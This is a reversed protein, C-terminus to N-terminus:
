EGLLIPRTIPCPEQVINPMSGCPYAVTSVLGSRKRNRGAFKDFITESTQENCVLCDNMECEPAPGNPPLPEGPEVLAYFQERLTVPLDYWKNNNNNNNNDNNNDSESSSPDDDDNNTFNTVNINTTNDVTVSWGGNNNDNDGDVAGDGSFGNFLQVTPDLVCSGFCKSATNWSTDSWIRACDQTLGLGRYCALGNEISTSAQRRCFNGPSTVGVFDVTAYVALDQVTSCVGCHGVHTVYGGALEADTRSPYTKIRYFTGQKCITGTGKTTTTTANNNSEIIGQSSQSQPVEYHIACVATEGLNLLDSDLSPETDCVLLNNNNNNNNNEGDDDNNNNKKNIDKYPNCNLRYPNLITQSKWINLHSEEPYSASPPPPPAEASSSVSPCTFSTTADPICYCGGCNSVSKYEEVEKAFFVFYWILVGIIVLVGVSNFV